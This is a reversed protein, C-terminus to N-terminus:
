MSISFYVITTQVYQLAVTTQQVTGTSYPIITHYMIGPYQVTHYANIM